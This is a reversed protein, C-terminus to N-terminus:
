LKTLEADKPCLACKENSPQADFAQLLGDGRASVLEIKGDGDMDAVAALTKGTEDRSTGYHWVPWGEIDIVFLAMTYSHCLIVQPSGTGLIPAVVPVAYATWHGPVINSLPMKSGPEILDKNNKVDIISYFNESLAIMDDAGDRDYDYVATPHHM